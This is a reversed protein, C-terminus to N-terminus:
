SVARVARGPAARISDLIEILRKKEERSLVALSGDVAELLPQDLAALLGTGTETIRCLVQRRDSPCRERRVLAKAELRDLLRTIGPTQEVMRHAIELTPLGAAGAGRLIRLVNYQQLTIGQSDVVGSMARRLHDATRMLGVLAEESPSRFPRTQKLERQLPTPASQM